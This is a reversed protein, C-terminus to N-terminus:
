DLILKMAALLFLNPSAQSEIRRQPNPMILQVKKRTVTPDIAKKLPLGKKQMLEEKIALSSKPLISTGDTDTVLLTPLADTNPCPVMKAGEGVTKVDNTAENQKRQSLTRSLILKMLSHCSSLDKPIETIVIALLHYM